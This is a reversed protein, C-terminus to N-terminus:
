SSLYTKVFKEGHLRLFSPSIYWLTTKKDKQEQALIGHAELNSLSKQITEYAPLKILKIERLYKELHKFGDLSIKANPILDHLKGEVDRLIKLGNATVQHSAKQEIQLAEEAVAYVNQVYFDRTSMPAKNKFLMKLCQFDLTPFMYEFQEVGFDKKQIYNKQQM